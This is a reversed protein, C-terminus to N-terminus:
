LGAVNEHPFLTLLASYRGFHANVVALYYEGASKNTFTLDLPNQVSPPSNFHRLCDIVKRDNELTVLSTILNPRGSISHINSRFRKKDSGKNDNKVTTAASAFLWYGGTFVHTVEM